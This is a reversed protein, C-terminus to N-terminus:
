FEGLTKQGKKSELKEVKVGARRFQVSVFDNVLSSYLERVVIKIENIENTARNLTKSKTYNKLESDIANIGVVSCVLNNDVLTQAVDNVLENIENMIYNLERSNQKLTKIRSIQKQEEATGVESDDEGRAANILWAGANKGFKEAIETRDHKRLDSITKVGLTNLAEKTKPGIGPIKDVDLDALFGEVEQPRVVTLGNPKQFDSAMKAMLKNPGIGVSCTFHHTDFIEKKLDEAIMRAKFYKGESKQSIDVFAEDISTQEFKDAYKVIIQMLQQSVESYREHRASLFASVVGELKKKAFAIPMGSKVGYKRAEYNSTAVAGSERTRGSFMCVVIPKGKLEPSDNEEVQAYFYDFDLHLIIRSM